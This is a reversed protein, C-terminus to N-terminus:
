GNHWRQSNRYQRGPWAHSTTKRGPSGPQGIRRMEAEAWSVATVLIQSDSLRNGSRYCLDEPRDLGAQDRLSAEILKDATGQVATTDVTQATAPALGLLMALAAYKGVRIM